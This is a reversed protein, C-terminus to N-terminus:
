EEFLSKWLDYGAQVLAILFAVCATQNAFKSATPATADLFGAYGAIVAGIFTVFGVISQIILRPQHRYLEVTTPARYEVTADEGGFVSVLTGDLCAGEGDDERIAADLLKLVGNRRVLVKAPPFSSGRPLKITGPLPQNCRSTIPVTTWAATM